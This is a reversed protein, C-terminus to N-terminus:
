VSLVKRYVNVTLKATKDWSFRKSNNISKKQLADYETNSLALIYNVKEAIDNESFPDFYVAAKGGVEPLCSINSAAVPTGCAMSELIPFGFGEDWSPVVTLRALNYIGVLEENSSIEGLIRSNKHKKLLTKIEDLEKSRSSFPRGALILPANFNESARILRPVNKNPNVDGLYLIFKDPLNYKKAISQLKINPLSRFISDASLPISFIKNLSIGTLAAIRKQSYLSDTIIADAKKLRFKQLQWKLSGKVGKPFIKPHDIPILDHVTIISPKFFKNPLTLFFPDFYPYHIVQAHSANDVLEITGLQSISSILNKIYVGSGRAKHGTILRTQDILVKNKQNM